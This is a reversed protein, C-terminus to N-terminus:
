CSLIINTPRNIYKGMSHREDIRLLLDNNEVRMKLFDTRSHLGREVHRSCLGVDLLARVVEHSCEQVRPGAM